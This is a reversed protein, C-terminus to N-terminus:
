RQYLSVLITGFHFPETRVSCCQQHKDLRNAATPGDVTKDDVFLSTRMGNYHHYKGESMENSAQYLYRWSCKGTLKM